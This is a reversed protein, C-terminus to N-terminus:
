VHFFIDQSSPSMNYAAGVEALSICAITGLADAAYGRVQADGDTLQEVYREVKVRVEEATTQLVGRAIDEAWWLLVQAEETAERAAM